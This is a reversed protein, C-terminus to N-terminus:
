SSQSEKGELTSVMDEPTSAAGVHIAIINIPHSRYHDLLPETRKKFIKLKNKIDELEDDVRESRDGGANSRIRELVIEPTCDLFIIRTITVLEDMDQAQGSHRPLGNLLVMDNPQIERRSVFELFIKRAIHFHNDKLLSGTRLSQLVIDIETGTLFNQQNQIREIKRLNEGFDFHHCPRGWLGTKEIHSGLPTKGSGTPGILPVATSKNQM